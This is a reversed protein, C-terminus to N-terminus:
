RSTHARTSQDWKQQSKNGTQPTTKSLAFSDIWLYRIGLARTVHIADQFTKSLINWDIGNCRQELNEGTTTSITDAQGWCHSLTIYKEYEGRSCYLRCHKIPDTRQSKLGVDIVRRPLPGAPTSRCFPHSKICRELLQSV